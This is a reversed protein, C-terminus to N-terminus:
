ELLAGLIAKNRGGSKAQYLADDAAALVRNVAVQRGRVVTVVGLSLTAPLDAAATRMPHEAFARRIREGLDMAQANEYGPAVILFEEGGYRGVHDYSRVAERLRRATERLVEDGVLHGFTDNVHKFHDLDVMVVAIPAAQRKARDLERGLAELIARRNLLGTLGDHMAQVRLCEQAALLRDQLDIIRKAARIRAQLESHHVPKILYDDAGADLGEVVDDHQDRATLLIVYVYPENFRKRVERCVQIGDMEPMMWDAILLQVPGATELIRIAEAGNVATLVDYGSRALLGELLRTHVADDDAVLVRM